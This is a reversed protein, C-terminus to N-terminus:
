ADTGATCQLAFAPMWDPQENVKLVAIGTEEDVDERHKPPPTLCKFGWDVFLRRYRQQVAPTNIKNMDAPLDFLRDSYTRNSQEIMSSADAAALTDFGVPEIFRTELASTTTEELFYYSDDDMESDRYHERIEEDEADWFCSLGYPELLAAVLEKGVMKLVVRSGAEHCVGCIPGPNYWRGSDWNRWQWEPQFGSHEQWRPLQKGDYEELCHDCGVKELADDSLQGARQRAFAFLEQEIRGWLEALIRLVATNSKNDTQLSGKSKRQQVLRVALLAPQIESFANAAFYLAAAPLSVGYVLASSGYAECVGM